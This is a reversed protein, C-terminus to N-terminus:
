PTHHNVDNKRCSYLTISLFLSIFHYKSVSFYWFQFSSLCIVSCLNGYRLDWFKITSDHSGTVVQPDQFYWVIFCLFCQTDTFLADLFLYGFIIKMEIQIDLMFTSIWLKLLNLERSNIYWIYYLFCILDLYQLTWCGYLIIYVSPYVVYVYHLWPMFILDFFAWFKFVSIFFGFWTSPMLFLLVSNYFSIDMHMNESCDFYTYSRFFFALCFPDEYRQGLLFQAFQTIMDPCHMLKCRAVFIGSRFIDNCCLLHIVM